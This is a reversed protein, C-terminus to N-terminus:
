AALAFLEILKEPSVPKIIYDSIDAIAKARLIDEDNISSSVMYVIIKKGMQPKIKVYHEMFDWGDMVPMNIDLFIIDPLKASNEPAALFDIAEKGNPFDILNPSLKKISILKKLGYVHIKDDDIVCVTKVPTVLNM